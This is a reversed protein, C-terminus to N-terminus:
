NAGGAGSATPAGSAPPICDPREDLRDVAARNSGPVLHGYIDVTVQISSHGLQDRIYALSEGNQILLSAYTHRLDHVRVHRLKAKALAPQFVRRRINDGDLPGGDRNTFVWVSLEGKGAKLMAAKAAVLHRELTEALANSVDVRRRKRNKPTTLKGSVLNRQVEIFRGQLDVDGWQLALLEGLRMGTRLACLFFAYHEPWDKEVTDLFVFAEERTLPHIERRPEDGKRVHRGMRFAPNATLFGDEVAQSLVASLTRQVGQLSSVKLKKDRCAVLVRRCDARLVSGLPRGGIVPLIHLELNFRYFRHTTAKRNAEGDKLWTKAYAEFTQTDTGLMSLDGLALRERIKKAVSLATDRDGVKKSRRRGRHAVFVWWGGRHFRVRVSM